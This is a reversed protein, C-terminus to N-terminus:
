GTHGVSSALSVQWPCRGECGTSLPVGQTRQGWCGPGARLALERTGVAAANGPPPLAIPVVVTRIARVLYLVSPLPERGVRPLPSMDRGTQRQRHDGAVFDPSLAQDQSCGRGPSDRSVATGEGASLSCAVSRTRGTGTCSRASCGWASASRRRHPSCPRCRHPSSRCQPYHCRQTAGEPSTTKGVTGEHRRHGPTPPLMGRHTDASSQGAGPRARVCGLGPSGRAISSVPAAVGSWREPLWAAGDSM